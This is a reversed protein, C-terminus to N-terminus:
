KKYKSSKFVVSRCCRKVKSGKQNTAKGSHIHNLSWGILLDSLPISLLGDKNKIKKNKKENGPKRVSVKDM